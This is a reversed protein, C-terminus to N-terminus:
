RCRRISRASKRASRRCSRRRRCAAVAGDAESERFIGTLNSRSADPRAGAVVAALDATETPAPSGPRNSTASSASSRADVARPDEPRGVGPPSGGSGRRALLAEGANRQDRRRARVDAHRVDAAARGRVVRSASRRSTGARDGLRERRRAAAVRRGAAPERDHLRAARARTLPLDTAAGAATVGPLQRVRELLRAYFAACARATPTAAPRAPQDRRFHRPRGQIRPRDGDAARLQPDPARRGGAARGRLRVAGHRPGRLDAAAARELHGNTRGGEARNGIRAAVVRARAAARLRAGRHGVRRDHIGLVRADFTSRRRAHFARRRPPWSRVSAGGRWRSAPPAARGRALVGTEILVLRMVRWRGAGLATRIAMERERAAARTLMLCAIDACAILLVVGVAALLVYLIRSINGVVDTACRCSPRRRRQVGNRSAARSLDGRRDAERGRRSGRGGAAADCGPKLRGVVTNNYM